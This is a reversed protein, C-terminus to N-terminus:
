GGESPEGCGMEGAVCPAHESAVAGCSSFKVFRLCSVINSVEFM